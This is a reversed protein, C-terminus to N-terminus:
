MTGTRIEIAPNGALVIGDNLDNVWGIKAGLLSLLAGLDIAEIRFPLDVGNSYVLRVDFSQM